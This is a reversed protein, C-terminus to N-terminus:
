TESGGEEQQEQEGLESAEEMRSEGERQPRRGPQKLATQRKIVGHVTARRAGRDMPNGLFSYQLPSGNGEGPSRGLAPISGVGGADGANCASEKGSGQPLGM